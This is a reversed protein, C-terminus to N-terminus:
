ASALRVNYLAKATESDATDFADRAVLWRSLAAEKRTAPELLVQGVKRLITANTAFWGGARL